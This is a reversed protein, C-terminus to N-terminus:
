LGQERMEEDIAKDEDYFRQWALVFGCVMMLAGIGIVFPNQTAEFFERPLIGSGILMERERVTFKNAPLKLLQGEKLRDVNVGPNLDKMEQVTINRKKIIDTLSEGKRVPYVRYVAGIGELIEKDRSSLSGSPLLITQGASVADPKVEPNISIVQQVTLGRKQAISKLTDGSRLTYPRVAVDFQYAQTVVATRRSSSRARAHQSSLLGNSSSQMALAMRSDGIWLV